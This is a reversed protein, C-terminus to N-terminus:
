HPFHECAQKKSKKKKKKVIARQFRKYAHETNATIRSIPFAAKQMLIFHSLPIPIQSLLFFITENLM